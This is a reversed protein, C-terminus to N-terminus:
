EEEIKTQKEMTRHTDSAFEYGNVTTEKYATRASASRGKAIKYKASHVSLGAMSLVM